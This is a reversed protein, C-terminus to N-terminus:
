RAKSATLVQRHAHHPLDTAATSNVGTKWADPRMTRFKIMRFERPTSESDGRAVRKGVFFPSRFDAIWIALAILALIPSLLLLAATSVAIDLARILPAYVDDLAVSSVGPGSADVYEHATDRGTV